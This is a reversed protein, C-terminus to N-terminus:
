AALTRLLSVFPVALRALGFPQSAGAPADLDGWVDVSREFLGRRGQDIEGGSVSAPRLAVDLVRRQQEGFAEVPDAAGV